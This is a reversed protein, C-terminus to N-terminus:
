GLSDGKTAVNVNQKDDWVVSSAVLHYLDQQLWFKVKMSGRKFHFIFLLYSKNYKSVAGSSKGGNNINNLPLKLLFEFELSWFYTWINIYLYKQGKMKM